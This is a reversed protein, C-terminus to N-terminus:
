AGFWACDWRLEHLKGVRHIHSARPYTCTLFYPTLSSELLTALGTWSPSQIGTWLSNLSQETPLTSGCCTNSPSCGPCPSLGLPGKARLTLSLALGLRFGQCERCLGPPCHYSRCELVMKESHWEPFFQLCLSSSFWCVHLQWLGRHVYTSWQTQNKSVWSSYAVLRRQAHPDWALISSHTWIEEELADEWGLSQIQMEQTEQMATLNKVQQAM